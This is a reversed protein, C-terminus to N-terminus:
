GISPWQFATHTAQWVVSGRVWNSVGNRESGIAAYELLLPELKEVRECLDRAITSRTM